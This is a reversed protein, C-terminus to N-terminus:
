FEYASEVVGNQFRVYGNAWRYGYWWMEDGDAHHVIKDPDGLLARVDAPMMGPRVLNLEQRTIENPLLRYGALLAAIVALILLLSRLGFRIRRTPKPQYM